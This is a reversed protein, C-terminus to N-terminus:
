NYRFKLCVVAIESNEVEEVTNNEVIENLM